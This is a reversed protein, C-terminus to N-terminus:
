QEMSVLRGGDKENQPKNNGATQDATQAPMETVTIKRIQGGCHVRYTLEGDTEKELEALPCGTSCPLRSYGALVTQTEAQHDAPLALASQPQDMYLPFAGAHPCISQRGAVVLEHHGAGNRGVQYMPTEKNTVTKEM